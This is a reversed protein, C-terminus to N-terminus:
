YGTEVLKRKILALAILAIGAFVLQTGIIASVAVAGSTFDFIVITGAFISFLGGVMVLWGRSGQLRHSRGAMALWAGTIIMWIGLLNTLLNMAVDTRTLFIIGVAMSIIGWILVSAERQKATDILWAVIGAIGAALIIVSIWFVLAILTTGPHKYVLTGLVILLLGQLLILWWKPMLTQM